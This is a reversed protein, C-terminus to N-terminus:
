KVSSYPVFDYQVQVDYYMHAPYHKNYVIISLFENGDDVLWESFSLIKGEFDAKKYAPGSVLWALNGDLKNYTPRAQKSNNASPNGLISAFSAYVQSYASNASAKSSTGNAEYQISTLKQPNTSDGFLFCISEFRYSAVSVDKVDIENKYKKLKYGSNKSLANWIEDYTMDLSIEPLLTKKYAVKELEEDQKKKEAYQVYIQQYAAPM